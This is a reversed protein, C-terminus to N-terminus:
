EHFGCMICAYYMGYQDYKKWMSGRCKGCASQKVRPKEEQLGFVDAITPTRTYRYPHAIGMRFAGNRVRSPSIGLREGIEYSSLNSLMYYAAIQRRERNSYGFPM